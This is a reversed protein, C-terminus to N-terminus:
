YGGGAPTEGDEDPVKAHTLANDDMCLAAFDWV